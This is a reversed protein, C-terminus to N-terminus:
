RKFVGRILDSIFNISGFGAQLAAGDQSKAASLSGFWDMIKAIQEPHALHGLNEFEEMEIPHGKAAMQKHTEIFGAKDFATDQGGYVILFSVDKIKNHGFNFFPEYQGMAGGGILGVARFEEPYKFALYYAYHAADGFATLLVKDSDVAYRRKIERVIKLTREDSGFPMERPNLYSIFLAITKRKKAEALWKKVFLNGKEAEDSYIVVALPWDTKADYGEPVYYSAGYRDETFDVLGLAPDGYFEAFLLHSPLCLVFILM